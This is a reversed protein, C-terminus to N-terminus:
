LTASLKRFTQYPLFILVFGAVLVLVWPNIQIETTPATALFVEITTILMQKGGSLFGELASYGSALWFILVGIVLCFMTWLRSLTRVSYGSREPLNAMVRETFGNDEIQQQAAESFLQKLMIDNKDEM